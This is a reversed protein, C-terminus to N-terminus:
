FDDMCVVEDIFCFSLRHCIVIKKRFISTEIERLLKYRDGCCLLIAEISVYTCGM